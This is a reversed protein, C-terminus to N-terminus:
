KANEKCKELTEKIIDDGVELQKMINTLEDDNVFIEGRKKGYDYTSNIVWINNSHYLSKKLYKVTFLEIDTMKGYPNNCDYRHIIDFSYTRDVTPDDEIIADYPYEKFWMEYEDEDDEMILKINLNDKPKENKPYYLTIKNCPYFNETYCVIHGDINKISHIMTKDYKSDQIEKCVEYESFFSLVELKLDDSLLALIEGM